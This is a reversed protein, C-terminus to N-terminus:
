RMADPVTGGATGRVAADLLEKVRGAPVPAGPTSALWQFTQERDLGEPIPGPMYPQVYVPTGPEARWSEALTGADM